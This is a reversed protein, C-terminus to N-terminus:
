SMGSPDREGRQFRLKVSDGVRRVQKPRTSRERRRGQSLAIESLSLKEEKMFTEVM